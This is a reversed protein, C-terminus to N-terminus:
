ITMDPGDELALDVLDDIRGTAVCMVTDAGGYYVNVTGDPVTTLAVREIRLCDKTKSLGTQFGRSPYCSNFIYYTDSIQTVRPDEGGGTRIPLSPTM